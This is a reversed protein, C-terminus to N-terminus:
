SSKPQQQSALQSQVKAQMVEMIAAVRLSLILDSAVFAGVGGGWLLLFPVRTRRDTAPRNMSQVRRGVRRQTPGHTHTHTHTHAHAHTHRVHTHLLGHGMEAAMDDAMIGSHARVHTHTHTHTHTHPTRTQTRTHSQGQKM